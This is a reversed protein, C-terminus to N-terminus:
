YHCLKHLASLLYSMRTPCFSVMHVNKMGMVELAENLSCTSKGSLKFHKMVKCFYPLFETVEAVNM